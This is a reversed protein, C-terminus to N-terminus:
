DGIHLLRDDAPDAPSFTVLRQDPADAVQLVTHHLLMEGARPHRLRKTGSVAPLVAQRSWWARAEPSTRHLREVLEVFEPDTSRRVAVARFRALLFAAEREWEVYVERARPDTFMFWLMNREGRPVAPWDALLARAGRNAALVDWRRGKVYTPYPDMRDVLASVGHDLTEAGAGGDPAPTGHALQHLLAHEAASMRLATALADLVRRSPRLQRGQELFTYYTTSVDALSAVEERRLGPARRRLGATLGVDEPALRERRSRLLQGLEERPPRLTAPRDDTTM